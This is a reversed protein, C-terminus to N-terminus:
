DSNAEGVAKPAMEVAAVVAPAAPDVRQLRVEEARLMTEEDKEAVYTTAKLGRLIAGDALVLILKV